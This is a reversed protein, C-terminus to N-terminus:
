QVFIGGTTGRSQAAGVDPYAVTNPLTVTGAATETFNGRGTAKAQGLTIRFDGHVPDVWPTAGTPYSISGIIQVGTLTTIIDTGNAETGVGFGCNLIYGNRNTSGTSNIGFSSNKIFNCNKIFMQVVGARPYDVGNANNYSDCSILFGCRNNAAPTLYFGNRTCTSAICRDLISVDGISFGDSNAANNGDHAICNVLLGGASSINFGANGAANNNNWAYAECESVVPGYGSMALANGRVDHIIVRHFTCGAGTVTVGGSAGSTGNNSFVLDEFDNGAGTVTLLFVAVGIGTGDITAKGGDGPTTAYGAFRIPGALSHAVGQAVTFTVGNTFNVRPMNQNANTLAATVFGFPINTSTAGGAGSWPGAWAGGIHISRATASSSPAAGAVATTSLIIGGNVANTVAEIRAIYAANTANDVFVAAFTNTVVGASVPNSSDTPIFLSTGDWNGNVSAYTPTGSSTSGSNINTGAAKGICYFETFAAHAPIVLLLALIYKLANM